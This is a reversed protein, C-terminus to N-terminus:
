RQAPSYFLVSRRPRASLSVPNCLEAPSAQMPKGDSTTPPRCTTSPPYPAVIPLHPRYFWDRVAHRRACRSTKSGARSSGYLGAAYFTANVLRVSPLMRGARSVRIVGKDDAPRGFIHTSSILRPRISPLSAHFRRPTQVTDIAGQKLPVETRCLAPTYHSANSSRVVQEQFSLDPAVRLIGLLVSSTQDDLQQTRQM